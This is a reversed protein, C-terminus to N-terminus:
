GDHFDFQPYGSFALYQYGVVVMMTGSDMFLVLLSYFKRGPHESGHDLSM